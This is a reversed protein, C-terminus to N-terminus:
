DAPLSYMGKLWSQPVLNRFIGFDYYTRREPRPMYKRHLLNRVDVEKKGYFGALDRITAKVGGGAEIASLVAKMDQATMSGNRVKYALIDFMDALTEQMVRETKEKFM